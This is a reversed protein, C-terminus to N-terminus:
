QFQFWCFSRALKHIINYIYQIIIVIQVCEKIYYIRAGREVKSNMLNM